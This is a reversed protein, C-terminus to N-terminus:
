ASQEIYTFDREVGDQRKMLLHLVEAGTHRPAEAGTQVQAEEGTCM